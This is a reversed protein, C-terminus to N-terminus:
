APTTANAAAATVPAATLLDDLNFNAFDFNDFNINSLDDTAVPTVPATAALTPVETSTLNGADTGQNFLYSSNVAPLDTATTTATYTYNWSGQDVPAPTVVPTDVLTANLVPSDALTLEPAAVPTDPTLVPAEYTANLVPTVPQAEVVPLVPAVM